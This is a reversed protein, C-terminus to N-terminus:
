KFFEKRIKSVEQIFLTEQERRPYPLDINFTHELSYKKILFVRSALSVAEEISHSVMIITKGTEKWINILDAHLESTIKPDLASFPEDLLLIDPDVSLARAIGVRQKQGGSLDIPRHDVFDKMKMMELYKMAQKTVEEKPLGKVKLVMAVNEFVSLWPLLAVSQFAMSLSGSKLAYGSSEKELGAIIKLVTSKGEGSPGVIIVFEGKEISFTVDKLARNHPPFFKNVEKFEIIAM